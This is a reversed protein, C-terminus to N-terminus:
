EGNQRIVPLFFAEPPVYELDSEYAGIDCGEGQPRPEGRQDETISTGDIATCSGANLAPSQPLLAHTPTPGGNDALPALWASRNYQDLNTLGTPNCSGLNGVVNHGDSVVTGLCDPGDGSGVIHNDAIISNYVSVVGRDNAVGGGFGGICFPDSKYADCFTTNEDGTATNDSITSGSVFLTGLNFIGGGNGGYSSYESSGSRNGSITSNTVSFIGRNLVGGGSALEIHNDYISSERVVMTKGNYIGGGGGEGIHPFASFGMVRNGHIRSTSIWAEGNNYLGAGHSYGLTTNMHIISGTISLTGQNAIGGGDGSLWNRCMFCGGRPGAENFAIFSDTTSLVGINWIGGGDGGIEQWGGNGATNSFVRSSIIEMFGRNAIGGGNGGRAGIDTLFYSLLESGGRNEIVTSQIVLATGYNAIGGGEGGDAHVYTLGNYDRNEYFGNGAANSVVALETITLIGSNRLGGGAEGECPYQGDDGCGAGTSDPAHGNRLTLGTINVAADAHVDMVRDLQNADIVTDDSGVGSIVMSSRIDLDGTLNDDESPGALILTYIGAPVLILDEGDGAPCADVATDTNAAQIAERLTCNGNNQFDDITTTVTIVTGPPPDFSSLAYQGARPTPPLDAQAFLGLTLISVCSIAVAFAAFLRYM